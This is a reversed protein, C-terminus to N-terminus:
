LVLLAKFANTDFWVMSMVVAYLVIMFGHLVEYAVLSGVVCASFLVVAYLGCM